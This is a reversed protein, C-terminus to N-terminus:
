AHALDMGMVILTAIVATILYNYKGVKDSPQSRLERTNRQDFIYCIARCAAELNAVLFPFLTSHGGYFNRWFLEILFTITLTVCWHTATYGVLGESTSSLRNPRRGKYIMFVLRDKIVLFAVIVAFLLLYYHLPFSLM